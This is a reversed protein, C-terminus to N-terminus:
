LGGIRENLLYLYIAVFMDSRFRVSIASLLGGGLTVSGRSSRCGVGGIM